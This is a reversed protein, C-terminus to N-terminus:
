FLPGRFRESSLIFDISANLILRNKLNNDVNQQGFLIIETIIDDNKALISNDINNLKDFLTKRQTNFNVCHLFFHKTSEIGNGCNCLPDVSDQFCHRFKHEKLHSLGLRLRTLYKIGIPNNIDFISNPKPRIFELLHKKFLMLSESKRISVDLKNWEKIASPFFSNKFYDHNTKFYLLNDSQRTIYQRNNNPLVDFLYSPAKSKIIKFFFIMKRYWRRLGLSELGLEQYVKESSSGKIAGTIALAANYQVSELKSKFAENFAKDYIIDGYDLHPRIFSKYITLLASRPLVHQLIRITGIVKNVKALIKDLHEDFNLKKDLIIGLHKQSKVQAVPINNFTLPSHNSQMIKRSFVVEHAQKSIDPNFTMKWQYAWDNIKVLDDNLENTTVDTNRVTSFLSTDDAFLKPNSRLGVSLDNIYILFLLPGLISGQPVGALIESWSSFQGNLVVRQKRFNLFDTLVELLPGDIGNQRLKYVLGEHWVKDFAKSIDLFVGRVEYGEDM